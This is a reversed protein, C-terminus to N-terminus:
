VKVLLCIVLSAFFSRSLGAKVTPHSPVLSGLIYAHFGSCEGVTLKVAILSLVSGSGFWLPM